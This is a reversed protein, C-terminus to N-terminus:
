PIHFWNFASSFVPWNVAIESTLMFLIMGGLALPKLWNKKPWGLAFDIGYVFLLLFPILAGLMLRGSTFYPHERSPYFCDHFDFIISLFGLFVVSCIFCGASFWLAQRQYDSPKKSFVAFFATGLAAISLGVYLRDVAPSALPKAHWFFEGQWFTATLKSLFIWLGDPTFIPHDWWDSFPKHTWGLLAIKMESGTADGFNYKSWARWISIPIGSCLVLCGLAPFSERLKGAKFWQWAKLLVIVMSFALLPLNSLKTLYAAAFAFGIAVGSRVGFVNERLLRLLLIFAAGFCLPSLVDNEISYFASQPLFAVLAPVGLRVFQNEPFIMRAAIYGMWVLAAVLLMNLFRIWYLLTGDRLGLAEGLRRWLGAVIYYLPPQSSELNTGRLAKVESEFLKQNAANDPRSWKPSPFKGGVFQNPTSLYERTGYTAIDRASEASIIEMGRPIHGHSYKVVM